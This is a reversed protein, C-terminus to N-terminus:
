DWGSGGPNSVRVRALGFLMTFLFLRTLRPHGRVAWRARRMPPIAQRSPVDSWRGGGSLGAGPGARGVSPQHSSAPRLGLPARRRSWRRERLRPEDLRAPVGSRSGRLAVPKSGIARDGLVRGRDHWLDARPSWRSRVSARLRLNGRQVRWRAPTLECLVYGSCPNAPQDECDGAERRKQPAVEAVLIRGVASPADSRRALM